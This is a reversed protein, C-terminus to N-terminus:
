GYTTSRRRPSPPHSGRWGGSGAPTLVPRGLRGRGGQPHGPGPLDHLRGAGQHVPRQRRRLPKTNDFLASVSANQKAVVEVLPQFTGESVGAAPSPRVGAPAQKRLFWDALVQKAERQYLEIKSRLEPAVKNPNITALWMPLSDLDIMMCERPKGDEAVMWIMQITAWKANRLKAHQGSYTLKLAESIRKVSAFKRGGPTVAADIIDGYFPVKEITALQTTEM